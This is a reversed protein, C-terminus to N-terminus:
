KDSDESNSGMNEEKKSISDVIREYEKMVRLYHSVADDRTNESSRVKRGLYPITGRLSSFKRKVFRNGADLDTKSNGYLSSIAALQAEELGRLDRYERYKHRLSESLHSHYYDGREFHGLLAAEEVKRYVSRTEM